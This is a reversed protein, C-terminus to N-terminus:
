GAHSRRGRQEDRRREVLPIVVEHEVLRSDDILLEDPPTFVDEEAIFKGRKGRLFKWLVGDLVVGVLENSVCVGQTGVEVPVARKVGSGRLVFLALRM